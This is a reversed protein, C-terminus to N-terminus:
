SRGFVAISEANTRAHAPNFAKRTSPVNRNAVTLLSFGNGSGARKLLAVNDVIHGHIRSDAVVFCVVGSPRLTDQLLRFVGAMQREFDEATHHNKKFFHPRAGIEAERVSIPDFGLWYMRYKHYLWYEYANPYPPSTIVLDVPGIDDPSISLIDATIIRAPSATEAFLPSLHSQRARDLDAASRLFLELVSESSVDKDIAAYRTDGDQFSVRVIISSLVLRLDDRLGRDEIRSIGDVLRALAFQVDKSFWHDVRPISPVSVTARRADRVILDAVLHVSQTTDRTKARAILTAIPNLDVGVSAYGASKAEVLTTGSGCFPDFVVAGVSPALIEILQRPIQPIFKAPYPHIGHVGAQTKASAFHWDAATLKGIPDNAVEDM